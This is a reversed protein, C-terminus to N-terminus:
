EGVKDYKLTKFYLDSMWMIKSTWKNTHDTCYQMITFGDGIIGGFQMQYCKNSNQDIFAIIGKETCIIIDATPLIKDGNKFFDEVEQKDYRM